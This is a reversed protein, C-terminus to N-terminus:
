AVARFEAVRGEFAANAYLHELRAIQSLLKSWVAVLLVRM